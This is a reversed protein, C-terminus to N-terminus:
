CCTLVVVILLVDPSKEEFKLHTLSLGLVFLEDLTGHIIEKLM